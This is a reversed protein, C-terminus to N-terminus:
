SRVIKQAFGWWFEQLKPNQIPLDPRREGQLLLRCFTHLNTIGQYIIGKWSGHLINLIREFPLYIEKQASLSKSCQPSCITRNLAILLDTKSAYWIVPIAVCFDCRTLWKTSAVPCKPLICNRWPSKYLLKSLNELKHTGFESMSTYRSQNFEKTYIAHLLM